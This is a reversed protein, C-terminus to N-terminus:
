EAWDRDAAGADQGFDDGYIAWGSHIAAPSLNEWIEILIRVAVSKTVRGNPSRRCLEEFRRRFISKIAGFVARDLPQLEDTHGAPIFWLKIQVRQAHEKIEKSRHVSYCDLILHLRRGPQIRGQYAGALSDLYHSFTEVTTWGSPSHDRILTPGSGLQNQEARRTKGKAIALLPLKDGSATISALVTVCDKENGDLRVTVGDAGIPAWTLLGSPLIRWATEDCNVILSLTDQYELLLDQIRRVWQHTDAETGSPNRRRTHFRRSSFGNRARFDQIFHHSCKFEAPDRGLHALYETILAEFTGCTFLRGVEIYETIIRTAIEAEQADTFQRNHSGHNEKMNWPRWTKDAEWHAKWKFVTVQPIRAKPLISREYADPTWRPFVDM